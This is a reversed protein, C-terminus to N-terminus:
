DSTPNSKSASSTKAVSRTESVLYRKQLEEFSNRDRPSLLQLQVGLSTAALFSDRAAESNQLQDYAIALHLQVTANEPDQEIIKQLIEVASAAHKEALHLSAQTDLLEQSKPNATIAAALIEQAEGIRDPSEALALALNNRAMVHNPQIELAHRYTKIAAEYDASM